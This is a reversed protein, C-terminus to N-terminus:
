RGQTRRPSRRRRPGAPAPGQAAPAPPPSPEARPPEAPPHVTLSLGIEKAQFGLLRITTAYTQGAVFERTITVAVQVAAQSRPALTLAAPEFGVLSGPLPPGVLPVLDGAEFAVELPRDFHNEVAFGSTVREGPRGELRLEVRRAAPGPGAAPSKPALAQEAASLLGDVLALGHTTIASYAALNFELWRSLLAGPERSAPSGRGARAQRAADRVIDGFRSVLRANGDLNAAVLEKLRGAFDEPSTRGTPDKGLM